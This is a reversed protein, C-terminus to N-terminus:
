RPNFGRGESKVDTVRGNELTVVRLLKNAGLNYVWEELYVPVVAPAHSLSQNRLRLPRLAYEARRTLPEGCTMYLRFKSLGEGIQSADCGGTGRASFGYGDADIRSLRGRQLTLVRLLQSPGFNYYWQEISALSNAPNEGAPPEWRDVYDPAGCAGLVEGALAETSVLRSGCRLSDAATVAAPLALLLSVSLAKLDRM